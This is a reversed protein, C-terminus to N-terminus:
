NLNREWLSLVKPPTGPLSAWARDVVNRDSVLLKLMGTTASAGLTFLLEIEPGGQQLIEGLLADVSEALLVDAEVEDLVQFQPDLGAQAPNERLLKACMSHITGIRASDIRHRHTQWLQRSLPDEAGLLSRDVKDRVKDRMERAAKETFTVAMLSRLDRGPESLLRLFREVLVLTKGSGAGATVVLDIGDTEIAQRQAATFEAM